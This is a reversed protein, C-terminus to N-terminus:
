QLPPLRRNRIQIGQVEWCTVCWYDRLVPHSAVRLAEEDRGCYTCGLQVEQGDSRVIWVAATGHMRARAAEHMAASLPECAALATPSGYPWVLYSYQHRVKALVSTLEGHTRAPARTAVTTM